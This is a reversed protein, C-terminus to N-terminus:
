AMQEPTNLARLSIRNRMARTRRKAVRETFLLKEV